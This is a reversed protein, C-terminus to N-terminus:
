TTAWPPPTVTLSVPSIAVSGCVPWIVAVISLAGCSGNLWKPSLKKPPARAASAVGTVQPVLVAVALSEEHDRGLAWVVSVSEKEIVEPGPPEAQAAVGPARGNVGLRAAPSTFGAEPECLGNLRATLRGSPLWSIEVMSALRGSPTEATSAEAGCHASAWAAAPVQPAEERTPETEALTPAPVLGNWIEPPATKM